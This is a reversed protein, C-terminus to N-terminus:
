GTSARARAALARQATNFMRRGVLPEHTANGSAIYVPNRVIGRVTADRWKKGGQPALVGQGNLWRAVMGPSMGRAVDTFIRRVVAAPAYPDDLSGDVSLSAKESVYGYPVRGEAFGGSARKTERAERLRRVLQRREFGAFSHMMERMMQVADGDGNVGEAFVVEAGADKFAREALLAQLTDRALRSFTSCLLVQARGEQVAALADRLGPRDELPTTGSVGLDTFEAVLELGSRKAYDAIAARQVDPGYKDAQEDSSVRVYSVAPIPPAPERRGATTTKRAM